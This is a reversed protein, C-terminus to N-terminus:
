RPKGIYFPITLDGGKVGDGSPYRIGSPESSHLFLSGDLYRIQSEKSYIRNGYLLAQAPVFAPTLDERDIVTSLMKQLWEVTKPLPTWSLGMLDGDETDAITIEGQLKTPQSGFLVDRAPVDSTRWWFQIDQPTVPFPLDLIVDGVQGQAISQKDIPGDLMFLLGRMLIEPPIIEYAVLPTNPADRASKARLINKVHLGADTKGGGSAKCLHSILDAVTNSGTAEQGPPCVDKNVYICQANLFRAGFILTKPDAAVPGDVSAEIVVIGSDKQEASIGLDAPGKLMVPKGEAMVKSSPMPLQGKVCPQPKGTPVTFACGVIMVQDGSLLAPGAEILVKSSTAMLTAPGGHTCQAVTLATLIPFM